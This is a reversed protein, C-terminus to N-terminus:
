KRANKKAAQKKKFLAKYHKAEDTDWYLRVSTMSLNEFGAIHDTDANFSHKLFRIAYPSTEKIEDCWAEVERDLDALPVVKNVLGMELAEDLM